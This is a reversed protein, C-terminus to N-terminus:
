HQRLLGEAPRRAERGSPYIATLWGLLVAMSTAVLNGWLPKEGGLAMEFITILQKSSNQGIRSIYNL